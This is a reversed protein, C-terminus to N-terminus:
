IHILSLTEATGQRQNALYAKVDLYVAHQNPEIGFIDGPLEASRGTESGSTNLIAIKM